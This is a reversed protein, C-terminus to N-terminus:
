IAPNNMEDEKVNNCYYYRDLLLAGSLRDATRCLGPLLLCLAPTRCFWPLHNEALGRSKRRIWKQECHFRVGCGTALRVLRLGANDTTQMRLTFFHQKMETSVSRLIRVAVQRYRPRCSAHISFDCTVWQSVSRVNTCGLCRRLRSEKHASRM